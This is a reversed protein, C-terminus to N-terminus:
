HSPIWRLNNPKLPLYGQAIQRFGLLFGLTRSVGVKSVWQLSRTWWCTWAMRRDRFRVISPKCVLVSGQRAKYTHASFEFEPGRAQVALEKGISCDGPRLANRVWIEKVRSELMLFLPPICFTVLGYNNFKTVSPPIWLWTKRMRLICNMTQSSSHM